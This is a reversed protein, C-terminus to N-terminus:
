GVPGDRTDIAHHGRQLDHVHVVGGLAGANDLGWGRQLEQLAAPGLQAALYSGRKAPACVMSRALKLM